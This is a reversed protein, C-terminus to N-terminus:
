TKMLVPGVKLRTNSNVFKKHPGFFDIPQVVPMLFGALFQGILFARLNTKQTKLFTV